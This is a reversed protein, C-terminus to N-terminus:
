RSRKLRQILEAEQKMGILGNRRDEYIPDYAEWIQQLDPVTGLLDLAKHIPTQGIVGHIRARNYHDIWDELEGRTEDLGLEPDLTAFLEDLITRQVREVKGNLHPSGPRIPRWKIFNKQFLHIVALATFETGRDTQIRQIHFIFNGLYNEVFDLTNAASRRTYLAATLCRTCDDIATYLYLGPRIKCTDMQIREGPVDRQYRKSRTYRRARKIAKTNNRKLVKHITALSTEFGYQRWLESQIRRVGLQRSSRLDLIWGEEEQHIRVGPSSIPRRSQSKLGDIGSAQYRGWWKRLTPRSIGCRRCTLGADGTEEYLKVWKLRQRIESEM